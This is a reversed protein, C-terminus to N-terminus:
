LDLSVLLQVVKSEADVRRRTATRIAGTEIAGEPRFIAWGTERIGADLALLPTIDHPGMM